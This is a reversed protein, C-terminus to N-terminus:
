GVTHVVLHSLFTVGGISGGSGPDPLHSLAPQDVVLCSRIIWVYFVMLGCENRMLSLLVVGMNYIIIISVM